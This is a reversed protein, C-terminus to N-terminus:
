AIMMAEASYGHQSFFRITSHLFQLRLFWARLVNPGGGSARGCHTFVRFKGRFPIFRKDVARLLQRRIRRM